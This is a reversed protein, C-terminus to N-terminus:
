SATFLTKNNILRLQSKKTPFKVQRQFQKKGEETHEEELTSKQANFFAYTISMRHHQLNFLQCFKIPNNFPM